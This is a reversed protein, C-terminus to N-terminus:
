RMEEELGAFENLAAAEDTEWKDAFDELTEKIFALKNKVTAAENARAMYLEELVSSLSEQWSPGPGFWESQMVLGAEMDDLVTHKDADTALMYEQNAADDIRSQLHAAYDRVEGPDMEEAM